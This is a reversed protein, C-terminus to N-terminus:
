CPERRMEILSMHLVAQLYALWSRMSIKSWITLLRKLNYYRPRFGLIRWPKVKEFRFLEMSTLFILCRWLVFLNLRRQKNPTPSIACCTAPMIYLLEWAS